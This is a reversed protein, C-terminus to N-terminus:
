EQRAELTRSPRDQASGTVKTDSGYKSRMFPRPIIRQVRFVNFDASISITLLTLIAFKMHGASCTNMLTVIAEAIHKPSSLTTM